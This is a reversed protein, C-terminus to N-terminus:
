KEENFIDHELKNSLSANVNEDLVITSNPAVSSYLDSLHYIFKAHEEDSKSSNPHYTSMVFNNVQNSRNYLFMLNIGMAQAVGNVTPAYISEPLGTREWAYRGEKSM